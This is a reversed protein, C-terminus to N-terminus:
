MSSGGLGRLVPHCVFDVPKVSCSHRARSLRLGPGEDRSGRRCRSGATQSWGDLTGTEKRGCRRGSDRFRHRQRGISGEGIGRGYRQSLDERSGTRYREDRRGDRGGKARRGGPRAGPLPSHARRWSYYAVTLRILGVYTGITVLVIALIVSLAATAILEGRRPESDM